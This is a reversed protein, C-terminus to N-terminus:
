CHTSLTRGDREFHVPPPTLTIGEYSVTPVIVDFAGISTDSLEVRSQFAFTNTDAVGTGVFKGAEATLGRITQTMAEIDPSSIWGTMATWTSHDPWRIEVKDSSFTMPKSRDIWWRNLPDDAVIDSPPADYNKDIIVFVSPVYGPLAKVSVFLYRKQDPLYARYEVGNALAECRPPQAAAAPITLACVIAAAAAAIRAMTGM